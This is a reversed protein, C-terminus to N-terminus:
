SGFGARALLEEARAQATAAAEEAPVGEVAVALVMDRLIGSGLVQMLYPKDNLDEYDVVLTPKAMDNALAQEQVELWSGWRAVMPIQQYAESARLSKTVPFFHIPVSKIYEVYNEDEYFFSLFKKAAEPNASGKFLMWTEEDVQVAPRTGSPGVPKMWVSFHDTNQMEKPAYQEILSAGRGYGQFMMAARQGYLNAFTDLYGHGEWGPPMYQTLEKWFELVEIMKPDTFLPKNNADFLKGGNAAILEGMIINVFLNDGPVTIGYIDTKGDGDTDQTLAKANALLDDWTKPESLGLANALDARYIMLSTGAAHVLGYYDGDARCLQKIQDWLNDEGVSQVVDNLPLLLDEQQLASCTVPQGHALEPPSGAALSAQIKGELDGWALAEVEVKIGPNAAEFRSVIEAMASQSEPSTETHWVRVVEQASATGFGGLVAFGAAVATILPKRM